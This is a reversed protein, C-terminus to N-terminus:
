KKLAFLLRNKQRRAFLRLAQKATQQTNKVKVTCTKLNNHMVWVNLLRESLFGYLRQEYPTYGTMDVQKELEFLVAFLWACYADFTEQRAILMNFLHLRNGAMVTDFAPLYEADVTEVAQRLLILDREHGSHLCFEQWASERLIERPPLLIDSDALLRGIAEETLVQGGQMFYRRYHVLGKYADQTNKWIWYLGTLECFHPNKESIHEGTNDKTYPLDAGNAAGVQLPIYGATDVPPFAKHAAIYVAM